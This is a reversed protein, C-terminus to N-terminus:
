SFKRTSHQMCALANMHVAGCVRMHTYQVASVSPVRMTVEAINEGNLGRRIEKVSYGKLRVRKQPEM